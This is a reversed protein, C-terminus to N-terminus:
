CRSDTGATLWHLGDPSPLVCTVAGQHARVLEIAVGGAGGGVGGSSNLVPARGGIISGAYMASMVHNFLLRMVVLTKLAYLFLWQSLEQKRRRM